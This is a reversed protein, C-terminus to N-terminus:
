PFPLAETINTTIFPYYGEGPAVVTLVADGTIARQITKNYSEYVM